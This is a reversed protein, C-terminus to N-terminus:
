RNVLIEIKIFLIKKKIAPAELQKVDVNKFYHAFLDLREVECAPDDIRKNKEGIRLNLGENREQIKALEMPDPAEMIVNQLRSIEAKL